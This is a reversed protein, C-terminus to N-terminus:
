IVVALNMNKTVFQWIQLFVDQINKPIYSYKRFGQSTIEDIVKHICNWDSHFKLEKEYREAQIVDHYMIGRFMKSGINKANGFEWTETNKSYIAGLFEACLKNYNTIEKQKM